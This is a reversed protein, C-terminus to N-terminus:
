IQHNLEWEPSQLEKANIKKFCVHNIIECDVSLAFYIIYFNFILHDLRKPRLTCVMSLTSLLNNLVCTYYKLNVCSLCLQTCSEKIKATHKFIKFTKFLKNADRIVTGQSRYTQIVKNKIKFINQM